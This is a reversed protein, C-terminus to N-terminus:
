LDSWSSRDDRGPLARGILGAVLLVPLTLLVAGAMLVPWQTPGLLELAHLMAPATLGQRGDLYLLPDLFNGWFLLGALVAVALTTRRLAPMAVQWWIALWGLGELRAADIWEQPIRRAAVYYLLAYLPSGGMLAPALLPWWSGIAGVADFLLFRPLWIVTYPVSAAAVLAAIVAGRLRPGLQTLAFGAWSATLLCLPLALTVLLLSRALGELMPVHDLAQAYAALGPSEPWPEFRQPPARDPARLSAGAMLLLPAVFLLLVGAQALAPLLKLLASRPSRMHSRSVPLRSPERSAPM